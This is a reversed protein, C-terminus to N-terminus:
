VTAQTEKDASHYDALEQQVKDREARLHYIRDCLHIGPNGGLAKNAYQIENRYDDNQSELAANSSSAYEAMTHWPEPTPGDHNLQHEHWYKKAEEVRKDRALRRTTASM